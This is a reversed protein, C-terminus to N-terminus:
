WLLYSIPLGFIKFRSFFKVIICCIRRPFNSNSKDQANVRPFQNEKMFSHLLAEEKHLIRNIM